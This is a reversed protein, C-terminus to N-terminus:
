IRIKKKTLSFFVLFLNTQQYKSNMMAKLQRLFMSCDNKTIADYDEESEFSDSACNERDMEVLQDINYCIDIEDDADIVSTEAAISMSARVQDLIENFLLSKTAYCLENCNLYVYVRRRGNESSDGACFRKMFKQVTYTKGTGTLGYLHILPYSLNQNSILLNYLLTLQKDRFPIKKMLSTLKNDDMKSYRNM